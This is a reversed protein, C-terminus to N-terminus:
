VYTEMSASSHDNPTIWLTVKREECNELSSVIQGIAQHVFNFSNGIGDCNADGNPMVEFFHRSKDCKTVLTSSPRWQLYSSSSASTLGDLSEIKFM